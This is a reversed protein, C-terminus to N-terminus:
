CSARGSGAPGRRMAASDPVDVVGVAAGGCAAATAGLRAADRGWVTVEHGLGTLAVAVARGIDSSRGVVLARPTTVLLV